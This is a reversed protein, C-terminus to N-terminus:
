EERYSDHCSKCAQGLTQIAAGVSDGSDIAATLDDAAEQFAGLKSAFDEPNEWIAPLAEGGESGEPFLTESIAALDAMANAHLALHSTHPVKQQLIDVMAQMHGGVAEMTHHRYEADGEGAAAPLALLGSLAAAALPRALIPTLRM